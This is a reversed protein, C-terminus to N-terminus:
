RAAALAALATIEILQLDAFVQRDVPIELAAAVVPLAEYRLGTQMPVTIGGLGTSVSMSGWNWQTALGLFLRCARGEDDEEIEFPPEAPPRNARLKAVEREIADPPLGGEAM